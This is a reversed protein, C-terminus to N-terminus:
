RSATILINKTLSLLSISEHKIQFTMYNAEFHSLLHAVHAYCMPCLLSHNIPVTSFHSYNQLWSIPSCSSSHLPSHPCVILQPVESIFNCNRPEECDM